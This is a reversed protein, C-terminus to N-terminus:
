PKRAEERLKKAEADCGDMRRKPYRLGASPALLVLCYCAASWEWAGPSRPYPIGPEGGGGQDDFFRRRSKNIVFGAIAQMILSISTGSWDSRKVSCGFHTFLPLMGYLRIALSLVYQALIM